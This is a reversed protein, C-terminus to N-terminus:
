GRSPGKKQEWWKGVDMTGELVDLDPISSVRDPLDPPVLSTELQDRKPPPPPLEEEKKPQRLGSFYQHALEELLTPDAGDLVSEMYHLEDEDWLDAQSLALDIFEEKTLGVEQLIDRVDEKKVEEPVVLHSPPKPANRELWESRTEPKLLNLLGEWTETGNTMTM